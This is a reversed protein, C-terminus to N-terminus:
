RTSKEVPLGISFAVIEAIPIVKMWVLLLAVPYKESSPNSGPSYEITIVFSPYSDMVHNSLTPAAWAKSDLMLMRLTELAPPGIFSVKLTGQSPSSYRTSIVLLEVTVFKLKLWCCIFILKLTAPSSPVTPNQLTVIGLMSRPPGYVIKTFSTGIVESHVHFM